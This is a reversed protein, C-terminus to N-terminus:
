AISEAPFVAALVASVGWLYAIAVVVGAIMPISLAHRLIHGLVAVNWALLGMVALYAAMQWPGAANARTIVMFLPLGVLSFLTGTGSIAVGTQLWRRPVGRLALLIYMISLMLVAEAAGCLSARAPNMYTAALIINSLAYAVATIVFLLQAAPLDQPRHQLLCIGLFPRLVASLAGNM